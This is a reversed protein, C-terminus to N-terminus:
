NWRLKYANKESSRHRDVNNALSSTIMVTVGEICISYGAQEDATM